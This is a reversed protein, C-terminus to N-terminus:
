HGDDAVGITVDRVVPTRERAIFVIEGRHSVFPANRLYKITARVRVSTGSHIMGAVVDSEIVNFERRDVM